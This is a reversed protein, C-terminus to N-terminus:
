DGKTWRTIMRKAGLITKARMIEYEPSQIKCEPRDIYGHIYWGKYEITFM